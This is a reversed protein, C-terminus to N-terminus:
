NSRPNALKSMDYTGLDEPYREGWEIETIWSNRYVKYIHPKELENPEPDDPDTQDAKWGEVAKAVAEGIDDAVVSYPLHGEWDPSLILVVWCRSLAAELIEPTLAQTTM